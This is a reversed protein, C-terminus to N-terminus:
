GVEPVFVEQRHDFISNLGELVNQPAMNLHKLLVWAGEIIGQLLPGPV